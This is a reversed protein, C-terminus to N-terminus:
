KLILDEEKIAYYLNQLQHVYKFEKGVIYNIEGTPLYYLGYKFIGLCIVGDFWEIGDSKFGLKILWEDTLEIPNCHKIQISTNYIDDRHYVGKILLKDVYEVSIIDGLSEVFNGIRLERAEM